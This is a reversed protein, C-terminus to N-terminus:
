LHTGVLNGILSTVLMALGGGVFVRLAAKWRSGGGIAAGIAGSFGLTILATMTIALTSTSGRGLIAAIIPLMAGGAFSIASGSAAQLPRALMNHNIGLEDRAHAGLADKAHLQLAVEHALEATLGRRMYIDELEHLEEEPFSRLEDEELLLDAREADRQSSVSVYEGAAMSMAGAILGAIGATLIAQRSAHAATVGLMLSATSVIGDDAGLVVARLWGARHSKHGEHRPVPHGLHRKETSAVM